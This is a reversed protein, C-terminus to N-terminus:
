MMNRVILLMIAKTASQLVPPMNMVTCRAHGMRTVSMSNPCGCGGFPVATHFSFEVAFPISVEDMRWFNDLYDYM